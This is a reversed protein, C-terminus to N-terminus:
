RATQLPPVRQFLMMSFSDLTPDLHRGTIRLYEGHHHGSREGLPVAAGVAVDVSEHNDGILRESTASLGALEYEEGGFEAVVLAAVDVGLINVPGEEFGDALSAALRLRILLKRGPGSM